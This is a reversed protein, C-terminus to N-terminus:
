PISEGDADRPKFTQGLPPDIVDVSRDKFTQGLPPNVVPMVPVILLCSEKQRIYAGDNEPVPAALAIAALILFLIRNIFM